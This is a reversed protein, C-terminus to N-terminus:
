EGRLGDTDEDEHAQIRLRANHKTVAIHELSLYFTVCGGVAVTM